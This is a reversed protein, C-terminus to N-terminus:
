KNSKINDCIFELSLSYNKKQSDTVKQCMLRVNKIQKPLWKHVVIFVDWTTSM